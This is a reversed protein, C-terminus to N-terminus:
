IPGLARPPPSPGNVWPKGVDHGEKAEKGNGIKDRVKQFAPLAALSYRFAPIPKLRLGYIDTTELAVPPGHM